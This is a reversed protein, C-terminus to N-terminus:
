PEALRRRDHSTVTAQGFETMDFLRILLSPRTQMAAPDVSTM